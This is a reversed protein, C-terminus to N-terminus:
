PSQGRKAWRRTRAALSRKTEGFRPPLKPGAVGYRAVPKYKPKFNKGTDEIRFISVPKDLASFAAIADSVNGLEGDWVAILADASRAAAESSFGVNYFGALYASQFLSVGAPFIFEEIGEIWGSEALAAHVQALSDLAPSTVIMAKM